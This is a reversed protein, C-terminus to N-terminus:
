PAAGSLGLRDAWWPSPEQKATVISKTSKVAEQKVLMAKQLLTDHLRPQATNKVALKAAIMLELFEYFKPEFRPAAYDPWDEGSRPAGPLPARYDPDDLSCGEPMCEEETVICEGNEDKYGRVGHWGIWEGYEAVTMHSTLDPPIGWEGVSGPSLATDYRGEAFDTVSVPEFVTGQPIFRGNSVYLLEAHETDTCLFEGDIVYFGKGSLEVPRACDYPLGYAFRYGSDGHPLRTKLLRKRRRGMAWPAESLAELFTSLYISKFFDYRTKKKPDASDRDGEMIVELGKEESEKLVGAAYMARNVLDTNMNM